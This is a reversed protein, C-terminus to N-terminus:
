ESRDGTERLDTDAAGSEARDKEEDDNAGKTAKKRLRQSAVAVSAYSTGLIDAIDQLSAGVGKLLGIVEQQTMHQLLQAALLSNTIKVQVVLRELPPM